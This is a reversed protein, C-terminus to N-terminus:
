TQKNTHPTHIRGHTYTQTHTHTNPHPHSRAFRASVMVNYYTIYLYTHQSVATIKVASSAEQTKISRSSAVVIAALRRTAYQM